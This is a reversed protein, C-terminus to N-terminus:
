GTFDDMLIDVNHKRGVIQKTEPAAEQEQGAEICKDCKNYVYGGLGSNRIRKGYCDLAHTLHEGFISCFSKSWEQGICHNGSPCTRETGVYIRPTIYGDSM